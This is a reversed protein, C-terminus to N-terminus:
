PVLSERLAGEGEFTQLSLTGRFELAVRDLELEGVLQLAGGAAAAEAVVQTPREKLRIGLETGTETFRVLIHGLALTRKLREVSRWVPDGGLEIKQSIKLRQILENM